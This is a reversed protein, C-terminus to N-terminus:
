FYQGIGVVVGNRNLDNVDFGYDVRLVSSYLQNLVLRAGFGFFTQVNNPDVFDGFNGGDLRWSGIDTFVVGQFAGWSPQWLTQRHELNIVITGTGRDVRNGVGRINVYSDLVFPAFPGTNNTSLGTKLRAAFNGKGGIRRYYKTESVYKFFTANQSPTWVNEFFVLNSFGDLYQYYYDVKQIFHVLKVLYKNTEQEQPGPSSLYDRPAYKEYRENFFTGGALLYHNQEFERFGLLEIARNDYEYFVTGEQFFLPEITSYKDLNLSLGYNGGGIYPLWMSSSFSHRDYYMYSASFRGARGLWNYDTFGVRVFFNDKVGGFNIIPLVTFREKCTFVVTTGSDAHILDYDVESFLQSNRIAQVDTNLQNTDVVSGPATTIFRNLLFEKTRRLGEFEVATVEHQAMLQSSACILIGLVFSRM